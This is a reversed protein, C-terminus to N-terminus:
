LARLYTCLYFIGNDYFRYKRLWYSYFTLIMFRALFSWRGIVIRNVELM